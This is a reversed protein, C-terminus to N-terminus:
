MCQALKGAKKSAMVCGRQTDTAQKCNKMLDSRKPDFNKLVKMAHKVVKGCDSVPVPDHKTCAPVILIAISLAIVRGTSIAYKM